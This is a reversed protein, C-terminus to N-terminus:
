DGSLFNMDLDDPFQRWRKFDEASSADIREATVNRANWATNVHHYVHNLDVEFQGDDYDSDSEVERVLQELAEIAERLNWLVYDRMM